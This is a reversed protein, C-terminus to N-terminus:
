AGLNTHAGLIARNIRDASANTHAARANLGHDIFQLAFLDVDDLPRRVNRCKNDIRQCRGFHGLNHKIFIHLANFHHHRVLM